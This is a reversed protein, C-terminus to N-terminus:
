DVAEGALAKAALREEGAAEWVEWAAHGALLVIVAGLVIDPWGSATWATVLAMAIILLNVIVDNRASLFAAKSLSGSMRRVRALVLASVLNVLAAGAATIVLLPVDPPTPDSSKVVVQWAAVAAPVLIIGAMARGAIAQAGLSWGLAIVILLNIATDELFDASDALLSVSGIALAVGMEVFCYALNLAAVILSARRLARM